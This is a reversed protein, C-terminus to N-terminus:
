GSVKERGLGIVSGLADHLYHYVASGSECGPAATSCTYEQIVELGAFVHVTSTPTTLTAGTTENVYQITM